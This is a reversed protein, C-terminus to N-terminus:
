SFKSAFSNNSTGKIADMRSIRGIANEPSIPKTIERYDAISKKAKEIEKIVTEKIDKLEQETM